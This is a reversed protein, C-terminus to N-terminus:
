TGARGDSLWTVAGAVVVGMVACHEVVGSLDPTTL